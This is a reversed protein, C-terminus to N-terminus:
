CISCFILGIYLILFWSPDSYDAELCWLVGTATALARGVTTVKGSLSFSVISVLLGHQCDLALLVM